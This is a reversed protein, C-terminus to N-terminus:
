KGPKERKLVILVDNPSNPKSEFATPREKPSGESFCVRLTDGDLEYIAPLTRDRETLDIWKPKKTPDLKYTWRTTRSGVKYTISDKTVIWKLDRISEESAKRGSDEASVVKWTGPIRDAEGQPAGAGLLLGVLAFLVLSKSQMQDEGRRLVPLPWGPPAEQDYIPLAAPDM